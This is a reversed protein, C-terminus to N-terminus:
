LLVHFSSIFVHPLVLVTYVSVLLPIFNLDLSAPFVSSPPFIVALSSSFPLIHCM